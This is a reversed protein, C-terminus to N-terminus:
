KIMDPIRLKWYDIRKSFTNKKLLEAIRGHIASFGKFDVAGDKDMIFVGSVPGYLTQIRLIVAKYYEGNKKNKTDYCAASTVLPNKIRVPTEVTWIEPDTEDLVLQVSKRLTNDWINQSVKVSYILIGFIVATILIFIFYHLLFTKYTFKQTM